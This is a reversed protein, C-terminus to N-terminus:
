ENYAKSMDKQPHDSIWAKGDMKTKGVARRKRMIEM